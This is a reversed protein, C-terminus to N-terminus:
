HWKGYRIAQQKSTCGFAVVDKSRINRTELINDTDEVIEVVKKYFQDPDNWTVRITNNRFRNRSTQYTFLGGIVNGKNFTYVANKKRNQSFTIKGNKWYMMGRFISVIDKLAKIADATETFWINATFRPEYGGAGDPVLEDCYRAIQYLSYKDIDSADIYNGLGYRTNTVLDYFVWAPNNCYVLDFNVGSKYTDRDGRFSGDWNVYSGTDAGTTKNRTYSATTVRTGDNYKSDLPFYNTPVKVKLGRVHYGREPIQQFDQSDFIMAAYATLPYSLKDVLLSEISQLTSPNYHNWDGHQANTPTLRQIKVAIDTLPQFAALDIDFVEIFPNKQQAKITGSSGYGDWYHHVNNGRATIESNTPGYILTETYSGAGVPKHQLFIRFECGAVGEAGSSPKQTYMQDFRFTLKLKDVEPIQNGINMQTSSIVVNAASATEGTGAKYGYTQNNASILPSMNTQPIPTNLNSVISASGIDTPTALWSQSRTGTKFAYSVNAFNYVPASSVPNVIPTTLRVTTGTVNVASSGYSSINSITATNSSFSSVYGVKDISGSVGNASVPSVSSVKVASTNVYHSITAVFDGGSDLVGPIRIKQPPLQPLSVDDASFIASSSEILTSNAVLNLSSTASKKGSHITIWRVGASTDLDAFINGARDTVVSTSANFDANATVRPKAYQTEESKAIVPTTDLYVSGTGNVLGEIPGESIIDYVVASQHLNPSNIRSRAATTIDNTNAM